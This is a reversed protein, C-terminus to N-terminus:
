IHPFSQTIVWCLVIKKSIKRVSVEETREQRNNRLPPVWNGDWSWQAVDREYEVNTTDLLPVEERDLSKQIVEALARDDAENENNVSEHV